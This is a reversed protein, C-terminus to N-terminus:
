SDHSFHDHQYVSIRVLNRSGGSRLKTCLSKRLTHHIEIACQVAEVASTFFSLSDHSINQLIKGHFKAAVRHLVERHRVKLELATSEDQQILAAYGDIDTCMIAALQRTGAM